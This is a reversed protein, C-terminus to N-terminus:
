LNINKLKALNDELYVGIVHWGEAVSQDELQKQVEDIVKEIVEPTPNEIGKNKLAEVIDEKHWKITLFPKSKAM